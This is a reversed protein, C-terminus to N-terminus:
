GQNWRTLLQDLRDRSARLAAPDVVSDRYLRLSESLTKIAEAKAGNLGKKGIAWRVASEARKLAPVFGESEPPVDPFSAEPAPVPAAEGTELLTKIAYVSTRPHAPTPTLSVEVIPWCKITHTGDPNRERRVRHGATGTSLGLKGAKVMAKVSDVYKDRLSIQGTMWVGEDITKFEADGLTADTLPNPEGGVTPLGHYYLLDAGSKLARGFDTSSNFVDKLPSLDADGFPVALGEFRGDDDLSKLVFSGDFAWLDLPDPIM